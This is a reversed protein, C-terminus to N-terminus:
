KNAYDKEFKDSAVNVGKAMEEFAKNINNLLKQETAPDQSNNKRISILKPYDESVIKGYGQLGALVAKQLQDDGNFDGLKEVKEQDEKVADKWKLAVKEAEDYKKSQMAANMDNIHHEESNIVTMLENNYAVADKKGGCGAFACMMLLVTCKSIAKKM